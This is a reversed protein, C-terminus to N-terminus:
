SKHSLCSTCIGYMVVNRTKIDGWQTAGTPLQAADFEQWSFDVVNKCESCILHHHPAVDAEFRAQSEATHIKKILGYQELTALTRYVTDLSLSPLKKHLSKHLAEASPHDPQLLLQHYIETRQHTLKLGVTRCATSFADMMARIQDESYATNM